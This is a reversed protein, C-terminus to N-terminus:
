RSSSMPPVSNLAQDFGNTLSDENPQLREATLTCYALGTAAQVCSPSLGRKERMLRPSRRPEFGRGEPGCDAATHQLPNCAIAFGAYRLSMRKELESLM